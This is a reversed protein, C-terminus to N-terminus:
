EGIVAVSHELSLWGKRALIEGRHVAGSDQTSIAGALRSVEGDSGLISVSPNFLLSCFTVALQMM